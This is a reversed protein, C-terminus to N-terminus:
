YPNEEEENAVPEPQPDAKTEQKAPQGGTGLITELKSGKFNLNSLILDKVWKPTREFVEIDPNDLDFVSPANVLAPVAAADKQRLPAIGAVKPFTRGANKGKGPNQVVTVMVPTGLVAAFDGGHTLAPDLVKYRLTSKAKESTIHKLTITESVWRPKDKLEQGNEDLMFEDALEYTLLIQQAPDKPKGEYDPQPQLGLDIVQVLRSKYPGPELDPTNSKAIPANAANIGM